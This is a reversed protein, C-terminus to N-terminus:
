KPRNPSHQIDSPNTRILYDVRVLKIKIQDGYHYRPNAALECMKVISGPLHGSLRLVEERFGELELRALGFRHICIELLDHAAGGTLPGLRIHHEKTWYLSWAYGIDEQACGRAALYVPTRCRWILEKMMKAMVHTAPAFHDFFFWYHGQQAARYLIGRLRLSSQRKLWGEVTSSDAGDGHVKVCVHSNGADYLRRVLQRLLEHPSSAGTSYIIRRSSENGLETIVQKTLATKGADPPGWVLVSERKHIAEHLRRLENERGVLPERHLDRTM